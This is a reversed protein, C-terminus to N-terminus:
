ANLAQELLTQFEDLRQEREFSACKVTIKTLGFSTNAVIFGGPSRVYFIGSTTYHSPVIYGADVFTPLANKTIAKDLYFIVTGGSNGCCGTSVTRKIPM